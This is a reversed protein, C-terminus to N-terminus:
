KKEIESLKTVIQPFLTGVVAVLSLIIVLWIIDNAASISAGVTGILTLAAGIINVDKLSKCFGNSISLGVVTENLKNIENEKEQLKKEWHNRQEIIQNELEKRQEDQRELAKERESSLQQQFDKRQSELSKIFEDNKIRLEEEYKQFYYFSIEAGGTKSLAKESSLGVGDVSSDPTHTVSGQTQEMETVKEGEIIMKGNESM